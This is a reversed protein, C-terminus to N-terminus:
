DREANLTWYMQRDDANSETFRRQINNINYEEEGVSVKIIGNDKNLLETALEHSTIYRKHRNIM